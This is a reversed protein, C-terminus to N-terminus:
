VNEIVGGVLCKGNTSALNITDGAELVIGNCDLLLGAGATAGGGRSYIIGADAYNVGQSIRISGSGSGAVVAVGNGTITLVCSGSTNSIIIGGLTWREGSPVTATANNSLAALRRMSFSV